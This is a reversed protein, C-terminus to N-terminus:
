QPLPSLIINGVKGPPIGLPPSDLRLELNHLGPAEFTIGVPFSFGSDNQFSFSGPIASFTQMENGNAMKLTVAVRVGNTRAPPITSITGFLTTLAKSPIVNPQIEPRPGPATQVLAQEIAKRANQQATQLAQQCTAAKESAQHAQTLYGEINQRATLLRSRFEANASKLADREARLSRIQESLEGKGSNLKEVQLELQGKTLELRQRQLDWWGSLWGIITTLVAAVVTVFPARLWWRKLDQVELQLKQTELPEKAAGASRDGNSQQDPSKGDM